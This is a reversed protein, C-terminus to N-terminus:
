FLRVPRVNIQFSGTGLTCAQGSADQFTETKIVMAPPLEISRKVDTLESEQKGGLCDSGKCSILPMRVCPPCITGGRVQRYLGCHRYSKKPTQM